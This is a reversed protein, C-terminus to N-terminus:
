NDPSLLVTLMQTPLPKEQYNLYHRHLMASLTYNVERSRMPKTKTDTKCYLMLLPRVWKGAFRMLCRGMEQRCTYEQKLVKEGAFHQMVDTYLTNRFFTYDLESTKIYNETQFHSSMFDRAASANVDKLSVGTYAIYKVGAKKAADVVNKHQQYRNQDLGSILLVKEIGQMAKNLSDIDDFNGYRVEIGQAILSKAKNEDRALAVITGAAAHKLLHEITATGLHGTAGTILIRSM